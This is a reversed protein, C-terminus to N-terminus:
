NNNDAVHNALGLHLHLHFAAGLQSSWQTSVIKIENKTSNGFTTSRWPRKTLQQQQLQQYQQRYQQHQQQPQKTKNDSKIKKGMKSAILKVGLWRTGGANWRENRAECICIFLAILLSISSLPTFKLVSKSGIFHCNILLAFRRIRIGIVIRIRIGRNRYETTHPIEIEIEIEMEMEIEMEIEIERPKHLRSRHWIWSLTYGRGALWM